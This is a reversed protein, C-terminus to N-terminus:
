PGTMEGGLPKSRAKIATDRAVKLVAPIQEAPVRLYVTRGAMSKPSTIECEIVLEAPWDSPMIKITEPGAALFARRPQAIM